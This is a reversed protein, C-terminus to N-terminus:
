EVYKCGGTCWPGNQYGKGNPLPRQCTVCPLYHTVLEVEAVDVPVCVDHDLNEVTLLHSDAEIAIIRVLTGPYLVRQHKDVILNRTRAEHGVTPTPPATLVPVTTPRPATRTAERRARVSEYLRNAADLYAAKAAKLAPTAVGRHDYRADGADEGYTAELEAQWAMDAALAAHYEPHTEATSAFELITPEDLM